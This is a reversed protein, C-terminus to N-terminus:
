RTVNWAIVMITALLVAGAIWLFTPRVIHPMEGCRVCKLDDVLVIGGCRQCSRANRIAREVVNDTIVTEAKPRIVIVAFVVIVATSLLLEPLHFEDGHMLHQVISNLTVALGAAFAFMRRRSTVEPSGRAVLRGRIAEKDEPTPTMDAHESAARLRM